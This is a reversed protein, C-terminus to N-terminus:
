FTDTADSVDTVITEPPLASRLIKTVGMEELLNPAAHEFMVFRGIDHLLGILYAEAPDVDLIPVIKTVQAASFAPDEITLKGFEKFYNGSSPDLQLIKVCVQPLMPLEDIKGEMNQLASNAVADM